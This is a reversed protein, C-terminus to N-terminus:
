AQKFHDGIYRLAESIDMANSSPGIRIFMEEDYGPQRLFVPRASPLCTIVCVGKEDIKEIRTRIYPSYDRGLCARILTWLHLLFKDDNVFRDTEIGEISGDDRVGILLNGGKSNLFAAITKLCSREMAPNTKGARIDWRLTSKFEVSDGEGDRILHGAPIDHGTKQTLLGLYAMVRGTDELNAAFTDRSQMKLSILGKVYELPDIEGAVLLLPLVIGSHHMGSLAQVAVKRDPSLRNYILHLLIPFPHSDSEEMNIEGMIRGAFRNVVGILGSLTVFAFTFLPDDAGFPRAPPIGSIKIQVFPDTALQDSWHEGFPDRGAALIDKGFAFLASATLGPRSIGDSLQMDTVMMRILDESTHAFDNGGPTKLPASGQYICYGADHTCFDLQFPDRVTEM